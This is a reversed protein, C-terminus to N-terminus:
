AKKGYVVTQRHDLANVMTGELCCAILPRPLAEGEDLM